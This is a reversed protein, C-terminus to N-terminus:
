FNRFVIFAIYLFGIASMWNFPSFSLTIGHFSIFNLIEKVRTNGKEIVDEISSIRDEMKQIKNTITPDATGTRKGLNELELIGDM